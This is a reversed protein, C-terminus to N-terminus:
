DEDREEGDSGLSNLVALVEDPVEETALASVVDPSGCLPCGHSEGEHECEGSRGCAGCRFRAMTM